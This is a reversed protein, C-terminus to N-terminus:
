RPRTTSCRLGKKCRRGQGIGPQGGPPFGPAIGRACGDQHPKTLRAFRIGPQAGGLLRRPTSRPASNARGATRSPLPWSVQHPARGLAEGNCEGRPTPPGPQPSRCTPCHGSAARAPSAHREIAIALRGILHRRRPPEKCHAALGCVLQLVPRHGAARRDRRLSEGREILRPSPRPAGGASRAASVLWIRPQSSPSGAPAWPLLVHAPSRPGGAWRCGSASRRSIRLVSGRGARGAKKQGAPALNSSISADSFSSGFRPSAEASPQQRCGGIILEEVVANARLRSPCRVSDSFLEPPGGRCCRAFGPRPACAALAGRRRPVPNSRSSQRRPSPWVSRM